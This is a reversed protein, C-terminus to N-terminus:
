TPNTGLFGEQEAGGDAFVNGVAYRLFIAFGRLRVTWAAASAALMAWSM